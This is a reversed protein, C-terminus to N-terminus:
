GSSYLLTTMRRRASVPTGGTSAISSISFLSLFVPLLMSNRRLMATPQIAFPVLRQFVFGNSDCALEESSAHKAKLSTGINSLHYCIIARLLWDFALSRATLNM